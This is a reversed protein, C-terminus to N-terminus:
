FLEVEGEDMSEQPVPKHRTSKWQERLDALESRISRLRDIDTALDQSQRGSDFDALSRQMAQSFASLQDLQENAFGIIQTVIDEFQLSRVAVAVSTDIEGTVMAVDSLATNISEELSGLDGLMQDARGKADIAVNMDKAAIQGIIARAESVTHKADAVKSHIQDNFRASHRSLKRVEDAVVAFGRGAEGARAAEIAANLALLNTQDAITRVDAVLTFIDDMHDVMDDIKYVTEISQKSITILLDILYHLVEGTEKIVDHMTISEGEGSGSSTAGGSMNKLLGETLGQQRVVQGNLDTFGQGLKGVADHVITQVQSVDNRLATLEESVISNIDDVLGRLAEDIERIQIDSEGKDEQDVWVRGVAWWWGPLPLLVAVLKVWLLEFSVVLGLAILTLLLPSWFIKLRSM